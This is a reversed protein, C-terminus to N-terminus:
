IVFVYALAILVVALVTSIVLVRSVWGKREAQRAQEPTETPHAM